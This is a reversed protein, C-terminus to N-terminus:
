GGAQAAPHPTLWGESVEDGEVQTSTGVKALPRSLDDPSRWIQGSPSIVRVKLATM